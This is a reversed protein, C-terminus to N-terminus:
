LLRHRSIRCRRCIHAVAATASTVAIATAASAATIAAAASAVVVSSAAAFAAGQDAIPDITLRERELRTLDDPTMM